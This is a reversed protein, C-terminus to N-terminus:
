KAHMRNNRRAFAARGFGKCIAVEEAYVQSVYLKGRVGYRYGDFGVVRQSAFIQVPQDAKFGEALPSFEVSM